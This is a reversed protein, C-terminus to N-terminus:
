ADPAEPAVPHRICAGRCIFEVSEAVNECQDCVRKLGHAIFCIQVSREVPRSKDRVFERMEKFLAENRELMNRSAAGLTRAAEIDLDAFCAATRALIDRCAEALDELSAPLPAPDLELLLLGREAINVAQDGIREIDGVARMCGLVYRLDGAVPQYLALLRLIEADIVCELGDIGADGAIVADALAPDREFVSRLAKDVAAQAMRFARLTEAKLKELENEILRQHEM